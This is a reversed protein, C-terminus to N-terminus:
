EVTVELPAHDSVVRGNLQRRDEPWSKPASTPAGRVLVHDVGPGPGSFGEDRLFRIAASDALVNFDGGVVEIDGPQALALLFETARRLEVDGLRRDPGHQTAHLNTILARRGDPLAARVAQLVRREKAWSLRASLDLGLRRAQEDRFRRPNLVLAHYDFPELSPELLIANGQGTFASRFLGPDLATVRRGLSAGLRARAAVEPFATMGAWDGLRPLAWLPIEQLLLVDPRDEAALRVMAELYASRSPPVTNGHFLNWTRVLM